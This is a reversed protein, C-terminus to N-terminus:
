RLAEAHYEMRNHLELFELCAPRQLGHVASAVIWGAERSPALAISPAAVVPRGVAARRYDVPDCAELLPLESASCLFGPPGPGAFVVVAVVPGLRM